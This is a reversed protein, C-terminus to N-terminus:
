KLNLVYEKLRTHFSTTFHKEVEDPVVWKIEKLYGGAKKEGGVAECLFYIVLFDKKEPYTESFIAGLNKVDLGTKEKIKVKLVKDIDKGITLQGGPFCWTLEPINPDNERRGILIKKEKPDYVVGLIIVNFIKKNEM